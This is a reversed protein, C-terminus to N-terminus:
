EFFRCSSRFWHTTLLGHNSSHRTRSQGRRPPSARWVGTVFVATAGVFPGLPVLATAVGPGLVESAAQAELNESFTREHIRSTEGTTPCQSQACALRTAEHAPIITPM